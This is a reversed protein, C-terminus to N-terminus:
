GAATIFQSTADIKDVYILGQLKFSIVLGYSGGGLNTPTKGVTVFIASCMQTSVVGATLEAVCLRTIKALDAPILDGAVLAIGDAGTGRVGVPNVRFAKVAQSRIVRALIADAVNKVRRLPIRKIDGTGGPLPAKTPYVGIEGPWHRLTIAGMANLAPDINADHEVSQQDADVISVDTPLAGLDFEGWDLQLPVGMARPMIVCMASRRNNRANIPCSVRAMGADFPVYTSLYPTWETVLRARWAALTEYTGRDSADVVGWSFRNRGPSWASIIGSITAATTRSVHGVGRVWTWAGRYNVLGTTPSTGSLAATAGAADYAPATTGFELLDGAVLDGTAFHLTLGTSETSVPGDLLLLSAAGAATGNHETNDFGSIKSVGTGSTLQVGLPSAGATDTEWTVSGDANATGTSGATGGTFTSSFLGALEAATVAAVNAVNGSGVTLAGVSLGLSALVDATGAVVAGVAASGKQNSSLKTQGGSNSAVGGTTGGPLASNIKAFFLAQSNETGAFTIVTQTGMFSLTLTGLAVVAAYTSGSGTVTAAVASITLTDASGQEDVKGLFTDGHALAVPFSGPNSTISGKSASGTTPLSSVPTWQPEEAGNDLTYQYTIGATGITGGTIVRFAVEYADLPTGTVTISSSGTGTFALPLVASSAPMQHWAITDGTTVVKASGLTVTVGLVAITTATGLSIPAGADAVLGTYSVTYTIPGTGTTGGLTFTILVDAGDTATGSLTSDFNSANDAVVTADADHSAAVTATPLRLFVFDRAVKSIAYVCEKVTPGNGYMAVVGAIDQAGFPQPTLPGRAAPGMFVAVDSLGTAGFGPGPAIETVSTEPLIQDSAAM